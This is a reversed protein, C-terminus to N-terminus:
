PSKPSFKPNLPLGTCFSSPHGPTSRSTSSPHFSSHLHQKLHQKLEWLTRTTMACSLSKFRHYVQSKLGYPYGVNLTRDLAGPPTCSGRHRNHPFFLKHWSIKPSSVTIDPPFFADSGRLHEDRGTGAKLLPQSSSEATSTTRRREKQLM